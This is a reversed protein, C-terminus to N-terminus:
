FNGSAKLFDGDIETTRVQQEKYSFVQMANENM